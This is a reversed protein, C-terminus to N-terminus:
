DNFQNCPSLGRSLKQLQRALCDTKLLNSLLSKSSFSLSSCTFIQLIYIVLNTEIARLYKSDNGRDDREQDIWLQGAIYWRNLLNRYGFGSAIKVRLIKCAVDKQTTQAMYLYLVSLRNQSMERIKFEFKDKRTNRIDKKSITFM